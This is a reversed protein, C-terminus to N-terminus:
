SIKAGTSIDREVTLVGLKEDERAALLMGNSEVGRIQAPQLNWVVVVKKGKLEDETYYPRIGAVITREEDGAKIKVVYLKDANPHISVDVVQAVRLDMRKFEEFNIM